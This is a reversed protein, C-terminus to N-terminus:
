RLPHATYGIVVRCFPCLAEKDQRYALGVIEHMCTDCVHNHCSPCEMMSVDSRNEMCVPCSPKGSVTEELFRKTLPVLSVTNRMVNPGVYMAASRWVRQDGVLEALKQMATGDDIIAVNGNGCKQQILKVWVRLRDRTELVFASPKRHLLVYGLSAAQEQLERITLTKPHVDVAEPLAVKPRAARLDEIRLPPRRDSM